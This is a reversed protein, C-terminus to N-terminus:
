EQSLEAGTRLIHSLLGDGHIELEIEDGLFKILDMFEHAQAIMWSHAHFVRGGCVVSFVHESDNERQDYAHHKHPRNEPLCSDCGFLHFRRYGLMRLLPIARLLVTSGGPIAYWVSEYIENLPERIFEATTHWLYTRDKPLGELVAPHCQSAILYKCDDVVPHTFRANFERADVVIVASPTLEQELLWNYAGNLAVLKCGEARLRRLEDVQGALSPGGGVIICDFDNTVHPQVHMWNALANERVHNIVEQETTNIIGADVIDKGGTWASVYFTCFDGGDHSYHILCDREKFREMWWAYPKVTLHLDHGILTGLNDPVCSIQFWVHQAALLINDLVKPVSGPPLHEMVDCCFGYEASIELPRELNHQTFSLAHAQTTLAESIEPDLCNSAFDVMKVKLGGLLAMMLAGRGTGCGFDIVESGPKPKAISLFHQSATEGPAVIRYEPREWMMEYKKKETPAIKVVPARGMYGAVGTATM